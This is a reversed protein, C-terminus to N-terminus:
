RAYPGIPDDGPCGGLHLAQTAGGNGYPRCGLDESAFHKVKVASIGAVSEQGIGLGALWERRVLLEKLHTLSPNGAEQRLANWPTYHQSEEVVFLADLKARTAETLAEQVQKFFTQYVTSRAHQAARNLTPFVPLEFRQRVLEEIAVNIIDAPEDKTHAAERMATLM